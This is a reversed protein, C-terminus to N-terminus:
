GQDGRMRKLTQAVALQSKVLALERYTKLLEAVGQASPAATPESTTPVTPTEGAAMQQRRLAQQQEWAREEEAWVKKKRALDAWMRLAQIAAKRQKVMKEKAEKKAAQVAKSKKMAKKGM